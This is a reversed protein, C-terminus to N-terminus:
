VIWGGAAAKRSDIRQKIEVHIHDARRARLKVRATEQAYLM